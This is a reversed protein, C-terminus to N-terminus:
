LTPDVWHKQLRNAKVGLKMYHKQQVKHMFKVDKAKQRAEPKSLGSWGLAKYQNLVRNHM